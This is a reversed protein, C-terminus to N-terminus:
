DTVFREVTRTEAKDRCFKERLFLPYWVNRNPRHSWSHEVQALREKVIAHVEQLSSSAVGLMAHTM